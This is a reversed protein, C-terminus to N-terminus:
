HLSKRFAAPTTGFKKRFVLGLRRSDTFGTQKALKELPM